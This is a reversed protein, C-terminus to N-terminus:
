RRKRLSRFSAIISLTLTSSSKESASKWDTESTYRRTGWTGSKSGSFQDAGAGAATIQPVFMVGCDGVGEKRGFIATQALSGPSKKEGSGNAGWARRGM